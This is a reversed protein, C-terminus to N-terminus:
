QLLAWHCFSPLQQSHPQGRERDRGMHEHCTKELTNTVISITKHQQYEQYDDHDSMIHKLIAACSITSSHLMLMLVKVLRAYTKVLPGYKVLVMADYALLVLLVVFVVLVLECVLYPGYTSTLSNM